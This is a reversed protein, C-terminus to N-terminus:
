RAGGPVRPSLRDHDGSGSPDDPGRASAARTRRRAHPRSARTTGAARRRSPTRRLRRRRLAILAVARQLGRRGRETAFRPLPPAPIRPVFTWPCGLARNGDMVGDADDLEQLEAVTATGDDRKRRLEKTHGLTVSPGADTRPPASGERDLTTAVNM